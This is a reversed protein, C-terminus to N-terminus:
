KAAEQKKIAEVKDKLPTYTEYRKGCLYIQVILITSCINLLANRNNKYM